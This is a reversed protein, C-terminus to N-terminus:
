KSKSEKGKKYEVKYCRECLIGDNKLPFFIHYKYVADACKFCYGKLHPDTKEDKKRIKVIRAGNIAGTGENFFIQIDFGGCMIQEHLSEKVESSVNLKKIQDDLYGETDAFNAVFEKIEIVKKKKKSDKLRESSM